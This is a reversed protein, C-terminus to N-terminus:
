EQPLCILSKLKDVEAESLREFLLNIDYPQGVLHNFPWINVDSKVDILMPSESNVHYFMTKYKLLRWTSNNDMGMKLDDQWLTFNMKELISRSIMRGAGYNGNSRLRRCAGTETDVYAIDKVGFLDHLGIYPKYLDLLENMILDDSGIEMLYDFKFRECAKLGFNKKRGLYENDHEVWNVGYKECLPKMEDESLVSLVEIDYDPHTKMREIGLFCLETIEPRKWLALYILIKIKNQM